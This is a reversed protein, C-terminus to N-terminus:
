QSWGSQRQMKAYFEPRAYGPFNAASLFILKLREFSLSELDPLNHMNTKMM